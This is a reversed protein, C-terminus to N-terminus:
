LRVFVDMDQYVTLMVGSIENVFAFEKGLKSWM